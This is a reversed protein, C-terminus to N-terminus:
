AAWRYAVYGFAEATEIFAQEWMEKSCHAELYAKALEADRPELFHWAKENGWEDADRIEIRTIRADFDAGQGTDREEPYYAIPHFTVRLECDSDAEGNLPYFNLGTPKPEFTCETIYM